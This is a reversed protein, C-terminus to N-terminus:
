CRSAVRRIEQLVLLRGAPDGRAPSRSLRMIWQDQCATLETEVERGKPLLARGGSALHRVVLPLLHPLPALARATVVDGNLPALSEIRTAHVTVTTGTTRAAERLFVAKRQDSEVLHPDPAGLIALVLGPFGAGSGLDVLRRADPPLLPWLQASDLVHRTWGRDTDALTSPAVLNIRRTWRALHDLLRELRCVTELSVSGVPQALVEALSERRAQRASPPDEAL